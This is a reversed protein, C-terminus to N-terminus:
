QHSKLYGTQISWANNWTRDPTGSPRPLHNQSAQGSASGWFLIFLILGASLQPTHIPPTHFPWKRSDSFIKWLGCKGPFDRFNRLSLSRQAGFKPFIRVPDTCVPDSHFEGNEWYIAGGVGDVGVGNLVEWFNRARFDPFESGSFNCNWVGLWKWVGVLCGGLYILYYRLLPCVHM